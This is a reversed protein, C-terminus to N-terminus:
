KNSAPRFLLAKETFRMCEVYGLCGDLTQSVTRRFDEFEEKTEVSDLHKKILSFISVEEGDDNLVHTNKNLKM